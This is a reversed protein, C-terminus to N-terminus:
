TKLLISINQKMRIKLMYICKILLMIILDDEQQKILNLLAITKWM